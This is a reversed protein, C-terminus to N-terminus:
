REEKVSKKEMKAKRERKLGNMSSTLTPTSAHIFKM